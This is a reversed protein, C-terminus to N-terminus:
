AAKKGFKAALDTENIELPLKREKEKKFTIKPKWEDLNLVYGEKFIKIEADNQLNKQKGLFQMCDQWEVGYSKLGWFLSKLFKGDVKIGLKRALAIANQNARKECRRKLEPDTYSMFGSRQQASDKQFKRKTHKWDLFHGIEHLLISVDAREDGKAKRQAIQQPCINIVTDVMDGMFNMQKPMFYCGRGMEEEFTVEPYEKKMYLVITDFENFTQKYIGLAEMVSYYSGLASTLFKNLKSKDEETLETRSEGLTVTIIQGRYNFVPIHMSMDNEGTTIWKDQRTYDLFSM